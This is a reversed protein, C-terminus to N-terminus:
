FLGGVISAAGGAVVAAGLVTILKTVHGGGGQGRHAEFAMVGATLLVGAVCAIFVGWLLYDLLTTVDGVGPPQTSTLSLSPGSAAKAYGAGSLMLWLTATTSVGTVLLRSRASVWRGVRVIRAPVVRGVGTRKM